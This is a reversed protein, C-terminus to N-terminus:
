PKTVLAEAQAVRVDFVTGTTYGNTIFSGAGGSGTWSVTWTVFLGARYVNGPQGLSSQTYTYACDTHQQDAPLTRRFPVGPGACSASGLGGGPMYSLATPSAVAKAWVPGATVTVSVAHWRGRPVWYWEPLGVLGDKGRPPATAATLTPVRLQGIGIRVLDFPRIAPTGTWKSVQVLQGGLPGPNADQCTMIDWQYGPAPPGTGAAALVTRPAKAYTCTITSSGGGTGHRGGGNGSYVCIWTFNVPYCTGNGPLAATAAMAASTPLVPSTAVLVAAVLLAAVLVALRLIVPSRGAMILVRM